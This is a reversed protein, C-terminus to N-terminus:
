AMLDAIFHVPALSRVTFYQDSACTNRASFMQDREYPIRFNDQNRKKLEGLSRSAAVAVGHVVCAHRAQEGIEIESM